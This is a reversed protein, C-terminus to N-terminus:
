AAMGNGDPRGAARRRAHELAEQPSRTTVVDDWRIGAQTITTAVAASIGSIAVECGLLRLAQVIQRLADAAASDITPVGAIDLIALRVRNMYVVNLLRTTLAHSRGADLSGVLPVFVVGAALTTIPTELTAVLDLLRRQQDNQETLAAAQQESHTVDRLVLVRALGQRDRVTAEASELILEPARTRVYRTRSRDTAAQQPDLRIAAHDLVSPLSAAADIDALLLMRRAAPNAYRVQQAADLILIGDPLGELAAQFVVASPRFVQYRLAVWTFALYVPLPGLAYFVPNQLAVPSGAVVQSVLLGGCIIAAPIRLAPRRVAIAATLLITAAGGAILAGLLPTFPAALLTGTGDASRQVGAFSPFVGTFPAGLSILTGLLYPAGILWRLGPQAYREPLFLALVLWMLLLSSLGLLPGLVAGFLATVTMDRATLQIISGINTLLAIGVYWGFLRNPLAHADLALVYTLLVTLLVLIPLILYNIMEIAELLLM